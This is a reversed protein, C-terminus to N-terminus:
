ESTLLDWTSDSWSDSDTSSSPSNCSKLKLSTNELSEKTNMINKTNSVTNVNPFFTYKDNFSKSKKLKIPDDIKTIRSSYPSLKETKVFIHESVKDNSICVIEKLETPSNKRKNKHTNILDYGCNNSTTSKQKNSNTKLNDLDFIDTTFKKCEIIFEDYTVELNDFFNVMGDNFNDIHTTLNILSIGKLCDNM